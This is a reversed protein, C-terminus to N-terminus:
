PLQKAKPWNAPMNVPKFSPKAATGKAGLRNFADIFGKLSWGDERGSPSAVYAEIRQRIVPAAKAWQDKPGVQEFFDQADREAWRGPNWLGLDPRVRNVEVRLAHILNWPSDPLVPAVAGEQETGGPDRVRAPVRGPDPVPDPDPDSVPSRPAGLALRPKGLALGGSNELPQSSPEGLSAKPSGQRALPQDQSARPEGQSAPPPPITSAAERPHPVQHKLFTRIQICRRGEVQYRIIFGRSAIEELLANMDVEDIPLIAVKLTFPRDLLRGERDAHCPLWTWVFRAHISLSNVDEDVTQEPNLIRKRSM